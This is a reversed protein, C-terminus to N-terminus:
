RRRGLTDQYDIARQTNAGVRFRAGRAVNSYNVADAIARQVFAAGAQKSWGENLRGIYPVNNTTFIPGHELSYNLVTSASEQQTAQAQAVQAATPDSTEQAALDYHPSGSSLVWNARAWGTDRPTDEQLNAQIDLALALTEQATFARLDAIIFSLQDDAL